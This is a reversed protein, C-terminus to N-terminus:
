TLTLYHGSKGLGHSSQNFFQLLQGAHAALGRLAERKVDQAGAVFIGFQQGVGNALHLGAKAQAEIQLLM